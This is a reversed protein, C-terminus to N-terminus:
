DGHKLPQGDPDLQIESTKGNILIKAEYVVLKNRRTVSEVKEVTGNGARRQFSNHVASPLSNVAVEEEVEVIAGGEDMLIDKTHGNVIMEAEYFTQGREREESFGLITANQSQATVTQQVSAPLESRDIKKEAAASFIPVACSLLLLIKIEASFRLHIEM